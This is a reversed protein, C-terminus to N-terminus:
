PAESDGPRLTRGEPARAGASWVACIFLVGLAVVQVTRWGDGMTAPEALWLGVVLWGLAHGAVMWAFAAGDRWRPWTALWVVGWLAVYFQTPHRAAGWLAVAWPVETPTGFLSGNAAHALAFGIGWVGVGPALADLLARPRIGKRATYGVLVGAGVLVGPWAALGQMNLAALSSVHDAYADWHLLAYGMRAGILGCLLAITLGNSITNAPLDRRRAERTAWEAGLVFAVLLLVLDGPMALPGLNIVRLM